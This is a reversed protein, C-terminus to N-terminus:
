DNIPYQKFVKQDTATVKAWLSSVISPIASGAGLELVKKNQIISPYSLIYEALVLSSKWTHFGVNESSVEANIFPVALSPISIM